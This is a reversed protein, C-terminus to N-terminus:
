RIAPEPTLLYFATASDSDVTLEFWRDDVWSLEATLSPPQKGQQRAVSRTLRLQALASRWRVLLDRPWASYSAPVGNIRESERREGDVTLFDKLSTEHM